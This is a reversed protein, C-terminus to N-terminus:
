ETDEEIEIKTKIIPVFEGNGLIKLYGCHKCKVTNSLDTATWVHASANGQTTGCYKCTLIHGNLGNTKYTYTHTDTVTYECDPCAYTHDIITTNTCILESYEHVYSAFDISCIILYPINQEM